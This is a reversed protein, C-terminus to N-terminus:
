IKGPSLEVLREVFRVVFFACAKYQDDFSWERKRYARDLHGVRWENQGVAYGPEMLYWSPSCRQDESYRQWSAVLEPDRRLIPEVDAESLRGPAKLYDSDKLLQVPSQGLRHHDVALRCLAEVVEAPPPAGLRPGDCNQLHTPRFQRVTRLAWAVGVFTVVVGVVYPAVGGYGGGIAPNLFPYPYWGIAAGRALSYVVYAMPFVFAVGVDRWTPIRAPPRLVWDAVVAVPIVYHLVVNIWPLLPGLDADRLLVAFVIGVIAIYLTAAFRAFAYWQPPPAGPREVVVGLLLVTGTIANSLITFYSLFSVVSGGARVLLAFQVAIAILTLLGLCFRVVRTATM